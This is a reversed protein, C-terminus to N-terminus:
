SQRRAFEKKLWDDILRKDYRLPDTSTPVTRQLYSMDRLKGDGERITSGDSALLKFHLDIRPPHLDTLFRIDQAGPRPVLNFDGALKIDDIAVQLQQGAPLVIDARTRLYDGLSQMWDEPRLWGRHMQNDKVESLKETPAWSLQVRAPLPEHAPLLSTALVLAAAAIIRSIRFNSPSRIDM